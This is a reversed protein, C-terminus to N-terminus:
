KNFFKKGNVIVIGKHNADVRQGALNFYEGKFEKKASVEAIGTVDGEEFDITLAHAGASSIDLIVAGASPTGSYPYFGVGSAGYGLRYKNTVASTTWILHNTDTYTASGGKTLVIKRDGASTKLIVPVGSPIGKGINKLTITSGDKDKNAVYVSTNEDATYAQSGDYFARWGAMNDTTTLILDNPISWQIKETYYTGATWGIFVYAGDKIDIDGSKTLESPSTTITTSSSANTIDDDPGQYIVYTGQKGSASNSTISLTGSKEIHLIFYRTASEGTMTSKGGPKLYGSTISCSKGAMYIMTTSGDTATLTNDIPTHPESSPATISGIGADSFDWTAGPIEEASPLPTGTYQLEMEDFYAQGIEKSNKDLNKHYFEFKLYLTKSMAAKPLTYSALEYHSNSGVATTPTNSDTRDVLTYDSGNTSYSLKMFSTANNWNASNCGFYNTVQMQDYREVNLPGVIYSGTQGQGSFIATKEKGMTNKSAKCNSVTVSADKYVSLIGSKTSYANSWDKNNGGIDGFSEHFLVTPTTDAWVGMSGVVLACLLLTSKLLTIKKM